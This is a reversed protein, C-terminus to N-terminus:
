LNCLTDIIKKDKTIDFKRGFIKNSEKIEKLNDITLIKPSARWKERVIYWLCDNIIENERNNVLITQFFVEDNNATCNFNKLVNEGDETRLFNLLFKIHTYSLVMWSCWWYITYKDVLYTRKPLFFSIIKWIVINIVPVKINTDFKRFYSLFKIFLKNIQKPIHFNTDYFSYSTIRNKIVDKFAKRYDICSKNWFGNIYNEIYNITKIPFCQWSIIVAHDWKKMNKYIESLWILEADLMKTWWWSINQRDEIYYVDKLKEFIKVKKDIHIYIKSNKTKIKKVLLELQDLNNHVLILYHIM